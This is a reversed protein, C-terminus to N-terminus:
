MLYTNYTTATYFLGKKTKRCPTFFSRKEYLLSMEKLELFLEYRSLVFVPRKKNCTTHSNHPM